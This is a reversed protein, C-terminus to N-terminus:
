HASTRSRNETKLLCNTLRRIVRAEGTRKLEHQWVRLVSWGGRRLTKNVLRDRARNRQLKKEWFLRNSVPTTRHERCSHWFCGDVFVAVRQRPFVFDPQGFIRGNRRWGKISYRRFIRILALETAKNGHSRVCSM